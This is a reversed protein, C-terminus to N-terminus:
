RMATPTKPRQGPNTARGAAAASRRPAYEVVIAGNGPDRFAPGEVPRASTPAVPAPGGSAPAATTLAPGVLAAVLVLLAAAASPRAGARVAATLPLDCRSPRDADLDIAGRAPSESDGGGEDLLLRGDDVMQQEGGDV